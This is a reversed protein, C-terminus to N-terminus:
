YEWPNHSGANEVKVAKPRISYSTGLGHIGNVAEDREALYQHLSAKTFGARKEAPTLEYDDSSDDPM